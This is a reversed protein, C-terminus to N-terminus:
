PWVDLYKGNEAKGMGWAGGGPRAIANKEFVGNGQGM